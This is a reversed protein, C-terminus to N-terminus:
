GPASQRYVAEVQRALRGADMLPSARMRERMSTRLQALRDLDAALRSAVRLSEEVSPAVLEDLGVRALLSAGVRSAHSRGAFTVVPVGMWLAECTTTTGNYPFTDLAIDIRGYTALHDAISGIPPLLEVRERPIGRRELKSWFRQRVKEESFARAKLLLRGGPVLHLLTAWADLVADNVKILSNFSGFTVAGQSLAPPAAVPQEGAPPTYCLFGGDIRALAETHLSETLGVPDAIADTIRVDMAALGTTAPYGLYSLQVPAIRGALLSMRNGATHGAMEVLVDIEDARVQEALKDDPMGAVVRWHEASARLRETVKDAVFSDSYCTIEVAARDHARLLPEFFYACSHTRLDPSLYGVRLRRGTLRPRATLPARKRCREDFRRHEAALEEPSTAPDNNLAFLYSSRCDTREPSRALAARFNELTGALDGQQMLALALNHHADPSSPALLLAQRGMAEARTLNGRKEEVAALNIFPRADTPDLEIAKVLAAAADAFRGMAFLASGLNTHALPYNPELEIARLYCRVAEEHRGLGVLIAGLDSANVAVLPNLQLSSSLDAVAEELRKEALRLRGRVGLAHALNERADALGPNRALAGEFLPIAGEFDGRQARIVGLNNFAHPDRTGQRIAQEFARAAGELDGRALAEAGRRSDARGGGAAARASQPRTV